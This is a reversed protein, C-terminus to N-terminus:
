PRRPRRSRRLRGGVHEDLRREPIRDVGGLGAALEADDGVGAIAELAADIRGEHQRAELQRRLQHQLQAAAVGALHHEGAFARLRTLISNGIESTFRRPRCRDRRPRTVRCGRARPKMTFACRLSPSAETVTGLQRGSTSALASRTSSTTRMTPTSRTGGAGSGAVGPASAGSRVRMWVRVRRALRASAARPRISATVQDNMPWSAASAKPPPSRGSTSALGIAASMDSM